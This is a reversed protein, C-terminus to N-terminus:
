KKSFEKTTVGGLEDTLLVLVKSNLKDIVWEAQYPQYTSNEIILKKRFPSAKIKFTCWGLTDTGSTNVHSRLFYIYQETFNWEEVEDSNVNTVDIVRWYGDIKDEVTKKCSITSVALFLVIVVLINSYSKM